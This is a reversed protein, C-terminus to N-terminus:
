HPLIFVMLASLTHNEDMTIEPSRLGYDNMGVYSGVQPSSRSLDGTDLFPHYDENSGVNEQIRNNSLNTISLQLYEFL